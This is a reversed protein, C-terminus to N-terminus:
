HRITNHPSISHVLHWGALIMVLVGIVLSLASHPGAIAAFLLGAAGTAIDFMVGGGEHRYRLAVISGGAILLAIVVILPLQGELGFIQLV